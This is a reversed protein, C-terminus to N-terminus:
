EIIPIVLLMIIFVILIRKIANNNVRKTAQLLLFVFASGSVASGFTDTFVVATRVPLM